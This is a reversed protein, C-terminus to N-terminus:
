TTRLHCAVSRGSPLTVLAPVEARCRAVAEPCRPHFACGTPPQLPSPPEGQLLPRAGSPRPELRPASALLARTYPHAPERFLEASSALEVVRGLYMVAVRTSIHRVVTLDHAIFLYTLGLERQLDQLLNIIQAQISVDLASVPEDCVLFEPEVALARAIGVRQRQGGSLEHPHRHQLEPRLGVQALLADVRAARAPGPHLDHISLAEDVAAGVTMRPDLSAFPDQFVPQMKRRLARLRTPNAHTIDDGRYWVTGSRTPVLRLLARGLTSKGCGSEGVLGLTEGARIRLDVGDVARLERARALPGAAVPFTCTLGRAEVLPASM